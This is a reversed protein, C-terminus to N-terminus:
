EVDRQDGKEEEDQAEPEAVADAVGGSADVAPTALAARVADEAGLQEIATIRGDALHVATVRGEALPFRHVTLADRDLLVPYPRRRMRPIAMLRSVFGPMKSIDAVYVAGREALTAATHDALVAKAIRGADMDHTVLM